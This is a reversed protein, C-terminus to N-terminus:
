PLRAFGPTREWDQAALVYREFERYNGKLFAGAFNELDYALGRFGDLPDDSYGPYKNSGNTGLLARM